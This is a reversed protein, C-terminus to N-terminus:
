YDAFLRRFVSRLWKNAADTHSREHWCLGMPVRPLTIGPHIVQLGIEQALMEAVRGPLTAVLDTYKAVMAAVNAMREPVTSIESRASAPADALAGEFYLWAFWTAAAWCLM